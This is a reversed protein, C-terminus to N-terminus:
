DAINSADFMVAMARVVDARRQKRHFAALVSLRHRLVFRECAERQDEPLDKAAEFAVRRVWLRAMFKAM